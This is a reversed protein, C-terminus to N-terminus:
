IIVVIGKALGTLICGWVVSKAGALMEKCYVNPTWGSLLAGVASMIIFLGCLEKYGWGWNVMGLMLVVLTVLM